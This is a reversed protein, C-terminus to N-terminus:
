PLQGIQRLFDVPTLVQLGFAEVGGFDKRNFTIIADCEAAVALELVMDDHPDRLFPRWLYYIKQKDSVRCVYDLITDLDEDTLRTQHLIRSAADEYEVVLPVSLSLQFVGKDLLMLLRYATGRQSLLASVFVNTDLVVWRM